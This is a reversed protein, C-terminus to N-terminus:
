SSEFYFMVHISTIAKLGDAYISMQRYLKVCIIKKIWTVPM